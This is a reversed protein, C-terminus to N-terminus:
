LADEAGPRAGGDEEVGPPEVEYTVPRAVSARVEHKRGGRDSQAERLGSGVRRGEVRDAKMEGVGARFLAVQLGLPRRSPGVLPPQSRIATAEHQRGDEAAVAVAERLRTRRGGRGRGGEGGGQTGLEVEVRVDGLATNYSGDTGSVVIRMFKGAVSATGTIAGTDTNL